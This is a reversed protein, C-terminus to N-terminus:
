NFYKKVSYGTLDTYEDHSYNPFAIHQTIYENNWNGRVIHVRGSQVKPAAYNVRASKGDNVLRGGIASVNYTTEQRILQIFSYGSARPEIYIMSANDLGTSKDTFLEKVRKLIDPITMWKSEAHRVVMRNNKIDFGAILFGTPDNKKDETYAGDIWLDWAVGSPIDGSEIIVFWEKQILGGGAPYPQQMYQTAFVYPDIRKLEELEELTHKHEWLAKDGDDTKQICPIALVTWEGPEKETLFGFLDESHLRHGIIIIPTKRSNVRTRITSDFKYNFKSRITESLADDPKIPDDIVIAGGFGTNVYDTFEDLAEEEEKDVVGAGFGTVQGSTSVAYLGGGQKTYWKKVNYNDLRAEYLQQYEPLLLTNQIDRSNDLALEDSGSLHIFKASPNMALGMSIFKKVAIETKGYRPSLNIMLKTIEGSFVKDLADSIMEHHLATIFKTKHQVKFFYKTYNLTSLLTWTKLIDIDRIKTDM